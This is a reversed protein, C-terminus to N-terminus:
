CGVLLLDTGIVIFADLISLDSPFALKSRVLFIRVLDNSHPCHFRDSPVYVRIVLFHFMALSM